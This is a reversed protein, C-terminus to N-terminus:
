AHISCCYKSECGALTTSSVHYSFALHACSLREPQGLGGHGIENARYRIADCQYAAPDILRENRKSDVGIPEM